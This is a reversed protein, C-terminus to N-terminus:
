RRRGRLPQPLFQAVILGLYGVVGLYAGIAPSTGVEVDVIDGFESPGSGVASVDALMALVSWALLVAAVAVAVLPAQPFRKTMGRLRLATVIAWVIGVIAVLYGFNAYTDLAAPADGADVGAPAGDGSRIDPLDFSESASAGEVSVGGDSVGEVSTEFSLFGMVFLSLVVLVAGVAAVLLGVTPTVGRRDDDREARHPRQRVATRPTSPQGWTQRQTDDFAQGHSQPGAQAQRYDPQPGTGPQRQGYGQQAGYVSRQWQAYGPDDYGPPRQDHGPYGEGYPQQGYGRQGHDQQQSYSSASPPYGYSQQGYGARQPGSDGGAPSQPRGSRQPYRGQGPDSQGSSTQAASAQRPPDSYRQGHIDVVYGTWQSGDHYRQAFRGSPDPYWGPTVQSMAGQEEDVIPM